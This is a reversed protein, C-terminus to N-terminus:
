GKEKLIIKNKKGQVNERQRDREREREVKPKQQLQQNVEGVWRAWLSIRCYPTGKKGDRIM